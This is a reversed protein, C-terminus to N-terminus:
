KAIGDNIGLQSILLYLPMDQPSIARVSGDAFLFHVMRGSHMSYFEADGGSGNTIGWLPGPWAGQLSVGHFVFATAPDFSSFPMAPYPDLHGEHVRGEEGLRHVEGMAITNSLGDTISSTRCAEYTGDIFKHFMTKSEKPYKIENQWENVGDILEQHISSVPFYSHVSSVYGESGERLIPGTDSPCRMIQIQIELLNRNAPNMFSKGSDFKQFLSDQELYPLVGYLWSLGLHGSSKYGAPPFSTHASEYAHLALGIQKLNNQCQARRAAERASQVAPLLLGILISIISLSVLLEVLSIANRKMQRMRALFRFFFWVAYSRKDSFVPIQCSFNYM